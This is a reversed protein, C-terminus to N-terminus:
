HLTAATGQSLFGQLGELYVPYWLICCYLINSSTIV